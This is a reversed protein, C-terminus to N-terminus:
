QEHHAGELSAALEHLGAFDFNAVLRSLHQGVVVDGTDGRLLEDALTQLDTVAGLAIADRLRASVSPDVSPSPLQPVAAPAEEGVRIFELGVHAQLVSFLAEARVPKPLYAACGADKAAQRTDGFASATVAIVPINATREDHALRRTASFGDIDAMKVDMFIVDPHHRRAFEIGEFGGTATIVRLGANQLLSALMQRSVTSDDVVLATVDQGPALRADIATHAPGSAVGSEDAAPVLPLAFFFRSGEGVVSEV